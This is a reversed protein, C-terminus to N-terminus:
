LHPPPQQHRRARHSPKAEPQLGNFRPEHKSTDTFGHPAALPPMSLAFLFRFLPPMLSAYTLLIIERRWSRAEGVAQLMGEAELDVVQVAKVRFRGVSLHEHRVDKAEEDAEKAVKAAATARAASGSAAESGPLEGTVEASGQEEIDVVDAGMLEAIGDGNEVQKVLADSDLRKEHEPVPREWTAGERVPAPHFFHEGETTHSQPQPM